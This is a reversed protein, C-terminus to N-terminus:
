SDRASIWVWTVAWRRLRPLDYRQGAGKKLGDAVKERLQRGPEVLQGIGAELGHDFIVAAKNAPPSQEEEAQAQAATTGGIVVQPIEFQGDEVVEVQQGASPLIRQRDGFSEIMKDTMDAAGSESLQEVLM